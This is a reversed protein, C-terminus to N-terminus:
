QVGTVSLVPDAPHALEAGFFGHKVNGIDVPRDFSLEITMRGPATAFLRLRPTPLQWRELQVWLESIFIEAEEDSLSLRATECSQM